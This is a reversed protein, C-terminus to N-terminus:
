RSASAWACPPRSALMSWFSAVSATGCPLFANFSMQSSSWAATQANRRTRRWPLNVGVARAAARVPEPQIAQVQSNIVSHLAIRRVGAAKAAAVARVAARKARLAGPVAKGTMESAGTVLIM